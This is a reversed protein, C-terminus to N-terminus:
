FKSQFVRYPNHKYLPIIWGIKLGILAEFFKRDDKKMLSFDWARQRHSFTQQFEIGGFFCLLNKKTMHQYGVFEYLSYGLTLRDYGKRYEENLQLVENNPNKIFIYHQNIGLGAKLLIGSNRFRQSVPIIKGGMLYFSLGRYDVSVEETALGSSSIFYNGGGMIYQFMETVVEQRVKGSFQYNFAFGVLWNSKTKVNISAGVALFNSFEKRLDALPFNYSFEADAYVFLTASDTRSIQEQLYQANM